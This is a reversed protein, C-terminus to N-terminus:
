NLAEIIDGWMKEHVEVKHNRCAILYLTDIMQKVAYLAQYFCTEQGAQKNAHVKWKIALIIMNLQSVKVIKGKRPALGLIVDREGISIKQNVKDSWWKSLQSWITATAPCGALYHSIDDLEGCKECKNTISKGIRNLYLNCPL